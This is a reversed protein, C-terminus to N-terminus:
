QQTHIYIMLNLYKKIPEIIIFKTLVSGSFRIVCNVFVSYHFRNFAFFQVKGFLLYFIRISHPLDM